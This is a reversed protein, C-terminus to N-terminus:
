LPPPRYSRYVQEMVTLSVDAKVADYPTYNVTRLLRRTAVGDITDVDIINLCSMDQEFAGMAARGCGAAWCLLVRNVADHSALLASSWSADQLLAELVSLVRQEFEIFSEGGVFRAVEDASRDYAYALEAELRAEDIERLRGARIERLLPQPEIQGAFGVGDALIQATQQARPLDSCLIRNLEIGRMASALSSVQSIGLASLSVYRPDLPKGHEDFYSVHGHRVLYLRRRQTGPNIM